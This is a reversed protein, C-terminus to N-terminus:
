AHQFAGCADLFLDVSAYDRPESTIEDPDIMGSGDTDAGCTFGRYVVLSAWTRPGVVGDVRRGNESQFIRLAYDTNRGFYGDVSAIWADHGRLYAQVVRVAPGTDCGEIPYQDNEAFAACPSTDGMPVYAIEDPDVIGNGDADVNDNYQDPFISSWTMPGVLGDVKRGMQEQFRRVARDTRPGFRGDVTLGPSTERLRYQLLRVADGSDCLQLPYELNDTFSTCPRAAPAATRESGASAPHGLATAALLAIVTAASRVTPRLM